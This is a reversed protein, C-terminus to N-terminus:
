HQLGFNQEHNQEPLIPEASYSKIHQPQKIKKYLSHVRTSLNLVATTRLLDIVVLVLNLILYSYLIPTFQLLNAPQVRASQAFKLSYIGGLYKEAAAVAAKEKKAEAVAEKKPRIFVSNLVLNLVVLTYM